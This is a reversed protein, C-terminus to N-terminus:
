PLLRAPLATAEVGGPAQPARRLRYARHEPQTTVVEALTTGEFCLAAADDVALGDPLGGPPGQAVLREYAPRRRAGDNAYHACASGPLLGLGDRLPWPDGRDRGPRTGSLSAEFWCVAGASSGLLLVGAEWAARLAADIGAARWVVLLFATVGGGVYVADQRRLVDAPAEPGPRFLSLHSAAAVPTFARYFAVIAHPGDGGATPLYCVRPTPTGTLRLAHAEVPTIAGAAGFGGGSMAVIRRADAV